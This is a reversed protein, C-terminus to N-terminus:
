QVGRGPLACERHSLIGGSDHLSVQGKLPAQGIANVLQQLRRAKTGATVAELGSRQPQHPLGCALRPPPALAM